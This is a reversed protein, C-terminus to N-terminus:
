KKVDNFKVQLLSLLPDIKKATGNKFVFYIDRKGTVTKIDTRLPEDTAERPLDAAPDVLVQGVLAGAPSDLRVEITGGPNNERLSTTVTFELQVIGTLDVKKFGIYGNANPIVSVVGDMGNVKVLAGKIVEATSAGVLSSRLIIQSEATQKPIAKNGRDTYAARVLVTGRGPDNAPLLVPFSGKVPLTGITQDTVGMIYRIMTQADAPSIAPHAPMSILNGWVGNGGTIVKQALKEVAKPDKNYKASIETFTPGISKKDVTHCNMCDSKAILARAVAFRTTADVSRQGQIVQAYDFGESTHDISISVQNAPIAGTALSGDEKDNVSVSYVIPKNDFFFTQNSTLNVKVVPPENGAVITLSKTNSAGDPDTVTLMASYVGPKDFVVDPNAEEITKFPKKDLTIDWKYTLEDGDADKTGASSLKVKLPVTGGSKSATAAILPKRNGANYEIRVLKASSSKAFWISGYELIYLDGDPGFKIDIPEVPRYSPLFREMAKYDGNGDMTISIIWGRALDTAIWKGEYYKPWPRKADGAFDDRRYIPGGTASRSGSGLLPFKDSVAYPYYIFPPAVEPLEKLGTNNVSTNTPKKPDKAPLLEGSVYDFIPFAANPGVFYPWGFFGPKRAQNLEDYGRPGIETDENADSGVDGWYLYGTESDVSPRWPNRHGMTYIEPRAGKTGEPFLNGKPIKYSGDAEPHIRLIKGLLSNTNATGRQDDWNVREPREDTSSSLSTGTNNGVTLYLNGDKDWTMGGGTHCCTERQTTFELVVKESGPVLRDKDFKWRTLQFKNITPHSYFTYVFQNDDFDPDVTLGLLGEEAESVTGKKSTYKTNVPITAILRTTNSAPDYLKITGKRESILVRGDNLVEFTNPEDLEDPKTLVVPTFRSEDPKEASETSCGSLMAAASLCVVSFLVSKKILM